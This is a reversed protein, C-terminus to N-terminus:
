SPMTQICPEVMFPCEEFLGPVTKLLLRSCLRVSLEGWGVQLSTLCGSCGEAGWAALLLFHFRFDFRWLSGKDSGAKDSQLECTASFRSGGKVAAEFPTWPAQLQYCIIISSM